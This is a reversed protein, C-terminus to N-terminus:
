LDLPRFQFCYDEPNAGPTVSGQSWVLVEVCYMLSPIGESTTLYLPYNTVHM